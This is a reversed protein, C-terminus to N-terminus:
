AVIELGKCIHAIFWHVIPSGAVNVAYSILVLFSCTTMLNVVPFIDACTKRYLCPVRALVASLNAYAYLTTRARRLIFIGRAQKRTNDAASSFPLAIAFCARQVDDQPANM